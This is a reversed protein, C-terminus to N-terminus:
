VYNDVSNLQVCAPLLLLNLLTAEKVQDEMLAYSDVNFMSFLPTKRSDM